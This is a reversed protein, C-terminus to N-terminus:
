SKAGIGTVTKGETRAVEPTADGCENEGPLVRSIPRRALLGAYVGTSM